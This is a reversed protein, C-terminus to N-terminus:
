GVSIVTIDNISDGPKIQAFKSECSCKATLLNKVNIARELGCQCKCYLVSYTNQKRGVVEWKGFMSGIKYKETNAM